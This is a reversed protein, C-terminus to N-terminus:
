YNGTGIGANRFGHAHAEPVTSWYGRLLVLGSPEGRDKSEGKEGFGRWEARRLSLATAEPVQLSGMSWNSFLRRDILQDLLEIIARHTSSKGIRKYVQAMGARPGEIYQFFGGDHHLLVGTVQVFANFDRADTLLATLEEVSRLRAASRVYCICQLDKMPCDIAAGSRRGARLLVVNSGGCRALLKDFCRDAAACVVLPILPPGRTCGGIGPRSLRGGAPLEAVPTRPKAAAGQRSGAGRGRPAVNGLSRTPRLRGPLPTLAPPHARRRPSSALEPIGIAADPDHSRPM